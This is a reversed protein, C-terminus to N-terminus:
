PVAAPATVTRGLDVRIVDDSRPDVYVEVPRSLLDGPEPSWNSPPSEGPATGAEFLGQVWYHGPPIHALSPLPLGPYDDTLEVPRGPSWATVDRWFMYPWTEADTTRPWIPPERSVVVVLRGNLPGEAAAPSYTAAFFLGSGQSRPDYGVGRAGGRMINLLLPVVLLVVAIGVLALATRKKADQDDM